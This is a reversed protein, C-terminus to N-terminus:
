RASIFSYNGGVTADVGEDFRLSRWTRLFASSPLTTIFPEQLERQGDGDSEMEVLVEWGGEQGKKIALLRVLSINEGLEESSVEAIKGIFIDTFVPDGANVDGALIIEPLADGVAHPEDAEVESVKLKLEAIEGDVEGDSNELPKRIDPLTVEEVLGTFWHRTGNLMLSFAVKEGIVKGYLEALSQVIATKGRLNPPLNVQALLNGCVLSALWAVCVFSLWRM